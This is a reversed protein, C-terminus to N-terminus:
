IIYIQFFLYKDEYEYKVHFYDLFCYFNIFNVLYVLM